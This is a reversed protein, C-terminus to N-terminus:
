EDSSGKNPTVDKSKLLKLLQEDSAAEIVSKQESTLLNKEDDATAELDIQKQVLKPALYPLMDILTQCKIFHEQKWAKSFEKAWDFSEETLLDQLYRTKKSLSGKPRGAPRSKNGNEM